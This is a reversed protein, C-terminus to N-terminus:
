EANLCEDNGIYIFEEEMLILVVVIVFLCSSLFINRRDNELLITGM